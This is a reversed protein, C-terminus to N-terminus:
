VSINEIKQATLRTQKKRGFNTRGSQYTAVIASFTLLKKFFHRSIIKFNKQLCQSEFPLKM